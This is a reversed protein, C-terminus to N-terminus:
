SNDIEPSNEEDSNDRDEDSSYNGNEEELTKSLRKSNRSGKSSPSAHSPSQQTGEMSNNSKNKPQPSYLNHFLVFFFVISIPFSSSLIIPLCNVYKSSYWVKKIDNEFLFVLHQIRGTMWRLMWNDRHWRHGPVVYFVYNHCWRDLLQHFIISDLFNKHFKRSCSSWSSSRRRRDCGCSPM